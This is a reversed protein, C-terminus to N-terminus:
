QAWQLTFHMAHEKHKFLWIDSGLSRFWIADKSYISYYLGWKSECWKDLTSRPRHTDPPWTDIRVAWWNDWFDIPLFSANPPEFNEYDKVQIM